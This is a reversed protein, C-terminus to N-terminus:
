WDLRKNTRPSIGGGGGQDFREGGAVDGVGVDAGDKNLSQGGWGTALNFFKVNFDNTIAMPDVQNYLLWSPVNMQIIDDKPAFTSSLRVTEIGNAINGQPTIVTSGDNFIASVYQTVQGHLATHTRNTFWNNTQPPTASNAITYTATNCGNCFVAYYVQANFGTLPGEYSPAYVRGYYFDANTIDAGDPKTYPAGQVGDTDAINASPFNFHANSIRFPNRAFQINRGFNFPIIAQAIGQNFAAAQAVYDPNSDTQKTTKEFNASTPPFYRIDSRTQELKRSEEVANGQIDTIDDIATDIDLALSVDRSYCGNTYLTAPISASDPHLRAVTDFNITAAMAEDESMYTMLGNQFNLVRFDNISIDNPVFKLNLDNATEINCGIKGDGNINITSSDLICDDTDGTGVKHDISTWKSDIANVSVDGVNPYVFTDDFGVDTASDPKLKRLQGTGNDFKATLTTDGLFAFNTDSCTDPVRSSKKFNIPKVQTTYNEVLRNNLDVAKLWINDYRQGGILNGFNDSSNKSNIFRFEKPRVSFPDSSCSPTGIINGDKDFYKIRFFLSTYARDILIDNIPLINISNIGEKKNEIEFESNRTYEFPANVMVNEGTTCSGGSIIDVVLKEKDGLDFDELSTGKTTTMINLLKANFPRGALQTFFKKSSEDLTKFRDNVVINSIGAVELQYNKIECRSITGNYELNIKDNKFQAELEIYDKYNFGTGLQTDFQIHAENSTDLIGGNGGNAGRGVSFKLTNNSVTQLKENDKNLTPEFKDTGRTANPNIHTTNKIYTVSSENLTSKLGIKHAAENGKNIIKLQVRLTDGSKAITKKSADTSVDEFKEEETENRGRFQLNEIFCVEPVYLDTSFAVLGINAREGLTRVHQGHENLVKIVKATLEIEASTQAHGMHSSIDYIDLDMQNNYKKNPDMYKGFKSITSNFQQGQSNLGGDHVSKFKENSSKRIGIDESDTEVKAGFSLVTLSSKIPGSVPTYFGSFPVVTSDRRTEVRLGNIIEKELVIDKGDSDKGSTKIPALIKLGDYINIGKPQVATSELDYVIVLAWGGMHPPYLGGVWIGDRWANHNKPMGSSSKINGASFTRQSSTLSAKVQKTVDVNAQYVFQLGSENKTTSTIYSGYWKTDKPDATLDHYKGDPTGFRIKNFDKITNFYDKRMAEDTKRENNRKAIGGGWYLRAFIIKDGTINQDIKQKNLDLKDAFNFTAKSSNLTYNAEDENVFQVNVIVSGSYSTDLNPKYNYKYGQRSNGEPVSITAGITEVDGHIKIQEILNGKSDAKYIKRRTLTRDDNVDTYRIENSASHKVFNHILGDNPDDALTATTACCLLIAVAIFNLNKM